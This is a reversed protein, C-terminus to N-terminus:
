TLQLNRDDLRKLSYLISFYWCVLENWSLSNFRPASGDKYSEAFVTVPLGVAKAVTAAFGQGCRGVVSGNSAITSAGLFLHTSHKLFPTSSTLLLYTTPIGISSLLSASERGLGFLDSIVLEKM